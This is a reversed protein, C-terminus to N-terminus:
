RWFYDDQQYETMNIEEEFIDELSARIEETLKIAKKKNETKYTVMYNDSTIIRTQPNFGKTDKELDQSQSLTLNRVAVVGTGNNYIIAENIRDAVNSTYESMGGMIQEEGLYNFHRQNQPYQQYPPFTQTTVIPKLNVKEEIMEKLNGEFKGEEWITEYELNDLKILFPKNLVVMVKCRSITTSVFFVSIDKTKSYVKIFENDTGSWFAGMNNHSHWHGIIRLCEDGYEKRLKILNKPEVEVSGSSVDQHPFLLGDIVIEGEKIEGTLFASIEDKYNQTLWTIKDEVDKKLKIKLVFEVEAEEKNNLDNRM